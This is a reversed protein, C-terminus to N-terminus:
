IIEDRVLRYYRLLKEYLTSFAESLDKYKKYLDYLIDIEEEKLRPRERIEYINFEKLYEAYKKIEDIKEIFKEIDRKLSELLYIEEENLKKDHELIKKKIEEIDNM